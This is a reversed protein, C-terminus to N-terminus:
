QTDISISPIKFYSRIQSPSLCGQLLAENHVVDYLLLYTLLRFFTFTLAIWHHNIYPRIHVPRFQRSISHHQKQATPFYLCFSTNIYSFTKSTLCFFFFFRIQFKPIKPRNLIKTKLQTSHKNSHLLIKRHM